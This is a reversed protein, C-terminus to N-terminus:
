DSLNTSIMEAHAMMDTETDKKEGPEGAESSDGTTSLGRTNGDFFRDPHRTPIVGCLLVDDVDHAVNVIGSKVRDKKLYSAVPGDEVRGSVFRPSLFEIM